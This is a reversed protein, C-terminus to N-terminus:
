EALEFLPHRNLSKAVFGDIDTPKQALVAQAAKISDLGVFVSAGSGSMRAEGFQNLWKLASAVATFESCVVKELDNRFLNAYAGNSFDAIKLTKSEKTLRSHAFIKATSVHVQPTLVVYYKTPLSIPSLKEGIGEAWANQGYIFFPIDAGLKIGIDMLAQRTLKLDWLYNLAMLVTAADSSGGGLGGGMPIQKDISIEVGQTCHSAQQLAKAARICLDDHEPIGPVDHKRKISNSQTPKLTITDGHDLLQFVTQLLHYGDQRQGTIHLFLNIKAPAIFQYSKNM